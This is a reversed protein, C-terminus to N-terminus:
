ATAGCDDTATLELTNVGVIPTFCVQGATLPVPVGNATVTVSTLNGDQDTASFGPICIPDLNCAFVTTNSPCVVVPPQNLTVTINLTKYDTAGAIDTVKFIFQYVGATTPTFCHSTNIPAKDYITTFTGAGSIKELTLSDGECNADTASINFCIQAPSCQFVSYDAPLTLVPIQNAFTIKLVLDQWDQDGGEPLDEWCVLYEHPVVTRYVKAHNGLFASGFDSNMASQTYWVYDPGSLGPLMYFGISGSGSVSFSASSGPVATGDFLQNLPTPNNAVYWGSKATTASGAVEIVMTALNQGPLVCWTEIGTEQTAVNIYGYGLDNFIQQLSLENADLAKAAISDAWPYKDGGAALTSPAFSLFCLGALLTVAFLATLRKRM